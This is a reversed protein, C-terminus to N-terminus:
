ACVHDPVQRQVVVLIKAVEGAVGLLVHGADAANSTDCIGAYKITGSHRRELHRRAIVREHGGRRIACRSQPVHPGGVTLHLLVLMGTRAQTNKYQAKNMHPLTHDVTTPQRHHCVPRFANHKTDANVRAVDLEVIGAVVGLDASAYHALTHMYTQIYTQIYTKRNECQQV